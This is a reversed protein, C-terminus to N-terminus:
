HEARYMNLPCSRLLSYIMHHTLYFSSSSFMHIAAAPKINRVDYIDFSFVLGVNAFLINNSELWGM